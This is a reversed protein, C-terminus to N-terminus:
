ISVGAWDLENKMALELKCKEFCNQMFNIRILLKHISVYFSSGGSVCQEVKKIFDTNGTFRYRKADAETEKMNDFIEKYEAELTEEGM